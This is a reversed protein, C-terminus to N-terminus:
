ELPNLTANVDKAGSSHANNCALAGYVLELHSYPTVRRSMCWTEGGMTNLRRQIKLGSKM